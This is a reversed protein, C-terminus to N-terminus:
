AGAFACPAAARAPTKQLFTFDVKPALACRLRCIKGLQAVLDDRELFQLLLLFFDREPDRPDFFSNFRDFFFPLLDRAFLGLRNRLEFCLLLREKLLTVLRLASGLNAFSLERAHLPTNLLAFSGIAIKQFLKGIQMRKIGSRGVQFRKRGAYHCLPRTKRVFACFKDPRAHAAGVRRTHGLLFQGTCFGFKGGHFFIDRARSALEFRAVSFQSLTNLGLLLCRAVRPRAMLGDFFSFIRRIQADAPMQGFLANRRWVRRMQQLLRM